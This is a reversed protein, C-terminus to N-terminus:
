GGSTVTDIFNGNQSKHSMRVFNFYVSGAATRDSRFRGLVWQEIRVCFFCEYTYTKKMVAINDYNPSM